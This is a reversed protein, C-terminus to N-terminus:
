EVQIVVCGFFSAELFSIEEYVLEESSNKNANIKKTKLGWITLIFSSNWPALRQFSTSTKQM